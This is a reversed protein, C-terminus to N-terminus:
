RYWDYSAAFSDKWIRSTRGEVVDEKFKEQRANVRGSEEEVSEPHAKGQRM